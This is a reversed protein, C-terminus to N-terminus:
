TWWEECPISYPRLMKFDLVIACGHSNPSTVRNLFLIMAVSIPPNGAIATMCLNWLDFSSEIHCGTSFGWANQINSGDYSIFVDAFCRCSNLARTELTSRIVDRGHGFSSNTKASFYEAPRQDSNTHLTFTKTNKKEKRVNCVGISLADRPKLFTDLTKLSLDLISKPPRKFGHSITSGTCSGGAINRNFGELQTSWCRTMQREAWTILIEVSSFSVWLVTMNWRAALQTMTTWFSASHPGRSSIDSLYLLKLCVILRGPSLPHSVHTM